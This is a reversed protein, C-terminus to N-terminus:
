RAPASPAPSAPTAPVAPVVPAGAGGTRSTRGLQALEEETMLEFARVVKEVGKVSRALETGREAERETVRGMLYVFSSLDM